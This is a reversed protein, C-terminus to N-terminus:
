RCCLVSREYKRVAEIWELGAPVGQQACYYDWVAGFPMAKLEEMLALKGAGDGDRELQQLCKVPELLAILTAKLTARSGIVWAAIRNVSADFFDLALYIRELAGGRNLELFVNRLDDNLIVIHDSDWRIGRSVHILLSPKYQLLASVKDAIAETPHFHGMELCLVQEHTLAYGLYFEYSGVVYDESGIGFLKPEITDICKRTDIKHAPDFIQNYADILRARPSWRDAPSDKCGDPIWFNCVCPCGQNEALAQAIKRCAISHKIWFSRIRKDAHSLTFGSAAKPHAFYTANFDLPVRNAKSWAMWKTFHRPKLEDREVVAAGTEAYFAHINARKRGPILRLAALMDARLEDGTRAAGPYNGTAMIGGSPGQDPRTELGRVDDGQWCHLSIPIRALKRLAAETDIGLAAYQAAAAAYRQKVDMSIRKTQKM